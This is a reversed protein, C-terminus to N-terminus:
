YEGNLSEFTFGYKSLKRKEYTSRCMPCINKNVSKLSALNFREFASLCAGHFVHSCSLVVREKVNSDEEDHFCSAQNEIINTSQLSNMCIACEGDCRSRATSLINYWSAESIKSSPLLLASSFSVQDRRFVSQSIAIAEDSASLLADLSDDEVQGTLFKESLSSL